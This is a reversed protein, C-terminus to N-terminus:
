RRGGSARVFTLQLAVTRTQPDATAKYAFSYSEFSRLATNNNLFNKVYEVNYIDGERMTWGHDFDKQAAPDLGTAVVSRLRYTEGPAVTVTYAVTHATRDLVAGPLVVVDMYGKKRYANDIPELTDLLAKRSAVDGTHLKPEAMLAAPAIETGAFKLASVRYAAGEEVTAAIEVGVATGDAASTTNKVNTLKADLYGAEAYPTLLRSETTEGALGENYRSGILKKTSVDMAASMAASVGQLKISQVRVRPTTVRFEVARVPQVTSPEITAHEVAATQGKAALAATLAKNITEAQNGAEPLWGHFLPATKHLTAALEEPTLWVFNEFGTRTLHAEDFPKLTLVLELAASTGATGVGVDDFYGTDILRQAAAQMIDVSVKEGKHLGLAAELDAQQYPGANKFTVKGLTWQGMVPLSAVGLMIVALFRKMM